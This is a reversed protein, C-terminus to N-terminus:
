LLIVSFPCQMLFRTKAVQLALYIMVYCNPNFPPHNKNFVFHFRLVSIKWLLNVHM